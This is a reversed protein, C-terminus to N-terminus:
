KPILGQFTAAFLISEFLLFFNQRENFLNDEHLAYEWLYAQQAKDLRNPDLRVRKIADKAPNQSTVVVSLVILTLAIPAAIDFPPHTGLFQTFESWLAQM